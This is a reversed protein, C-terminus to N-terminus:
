KKRTLIEAINGVCKMRGFVNEDGDFLNGEYAKGRWILCTYKIEGGNLIVMWLGDLDDKEPSSKGLFLDGHEPKM